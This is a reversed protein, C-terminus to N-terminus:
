RSAVIKAVKIGIRNLILGRRRFSPDCFPYEQERHVESLNGSVIEKMKSM